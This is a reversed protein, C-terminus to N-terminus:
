KAARRRPKAADLRSVAVSLDADSVINYREFVSRTKHGTLRMAVTETVGARVLNRVATRRFDHPIREVGAAACANAWAKNFRKIPKPTKQGGRSNAVMRVFVHPEITGAKALAAHQKHQQDLVAKLALTFPFVRGEGNKTRGPNLTVTGPLAQSPNLREKFNVQSWKLTLVESDIRWGTVYAFRVVAALEKSLHRCVAVCEDAEFFGSRAASEELMAIHPAQVLKGGQVALTFARKLTTLERNIEANSVDKVRQGKHPGRHAVIGQEKRYAVFARVDASTIAAMRRGGFYPLLHKTIRRKLVRMSKRNNIQYETELDAVADNFRLKGLQAQVPVGRDRDTELNRLKKKAENKDSTGSSVEVRQGNVRYRL